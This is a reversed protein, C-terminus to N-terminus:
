RAASLVRPERELFSLAESEAGFSRLSVMMGVECLVRAVLRSPEAMVLRGGGAELRTAVGRVVDLGRTGIFYLGRLNLVIRDFGQSEATYVAAAFRRCESQDFDGSLDLIGVTGARRMEIKFSM